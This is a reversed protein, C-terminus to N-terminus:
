LKVKMDLQEEETDVVVGYLLLLLLCSMGKGKLVWCHVVYFVFLSMVSLVVVASDVDSNSEERGADVLDEVEVFMERTQQRRTEM